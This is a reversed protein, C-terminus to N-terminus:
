RSTRILTVNEVATVGGFRKSVGQVALQPPETGVDSVGIPKAGM